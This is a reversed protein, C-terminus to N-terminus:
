CLTVPWLSPHTARAGTDMAQSMEEHVREKMAEVDEERKKKGMLLASLPDDDDVEGSGVGNAAAGAADDEEEEEDDPSAAGGGDRKKRQWQGGVIAPLAAAATGGGSSRKEKVAKWEAKSRSMDKYNTTEGWVPHSYVWYEKSTEASRYFRADWDVSAPM